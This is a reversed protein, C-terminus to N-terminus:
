TTYSAVMRSIAENFRQQAALSQDRPEALMEATGEGLALFFLDEIYGFVMPGAPTPLLRCAEDGVMITELSMGSADLFGQLHADFQERVDGLEIFLAAQCHIDVGQEAVVGDSPSLEILGIALPQRWAIDAMAWLQEIAEAEAEDGADALMLQRINEALSQVMPSTLLQGFASEDFQLTQGAWGAYAVTHPPFREALPAEDMGRGAAPAALSCLLVVTLITRKSM